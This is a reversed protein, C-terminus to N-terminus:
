DNEGLVDRLKSISEKYSDLDSIIERIKFREHGLKVLANILHEEFGESDPKWVECFMLHSWNYTKDDIDLKYVTAGSTSPRTTQVRAYLGRYNRMNAPVGFNKGHDIINLDPQIRVVDGPEIDGDTSVSQWGDIEESVQYFHERCRGTEICKGSLGNVFAHPCQEKITEDLTEKNIVRYGKRKAIYYLISPPTDDFGLAVVEISVMYIAKDYGRLKVKNCDVDEVELWRHVPKLTEGGLSSFMHLDCERVDSRLWVYNGEELKFM